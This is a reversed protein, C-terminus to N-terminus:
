FRGSATYFFFDQGASFRAVSMWGKAWRQVSKENVYKIGMMRIRPTTVLQNFVRVVM